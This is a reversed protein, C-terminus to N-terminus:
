LQLKPVIKSRAFFPWFSVKAIALPTVVPGMTDIGNKHLTTLHGQQEDPLNLKPLPKLQERPFSPPRPSIQILHDFINKFHCFREVFFYNERIKLKNVEIIIKNFPSTFVWDNRKVRNFLRRRPVLSTRKLKKVRSTWCQKMQAAVIRVIM